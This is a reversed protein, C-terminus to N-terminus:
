DSLQRILRAMLNARLREGLEVFEDVMEMAQSRSQPNRQRLYPLIRQEYLDAEREVTHRVTKLHRADIGLEIFRAAIDLIEKDAPTFMEEAGVKKPSILGAALVGALVREDVQAESMLETRSLSSTDDTVVARPPAKRSAVAKATPHNASDVALGQPATADYPRIMGDSTDGELRTRIVKLPLYNERQQRLIFRLREIEAQTFKRYGSATREPEILGQSELFRIKSITVDPFEELLLGLVEGISLYMKEDM